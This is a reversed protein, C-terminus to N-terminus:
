TYPSIRRSGNHPVPTRGRPWGAAHVATCMTNPPPIEPRRGSGQPSTKDLECRPERAGMPRMWSTRRRDSTRAIARSDIGNRPATACASSPVRAPRGPRSSPRRGPRPARCRPGPWRARGRLAPAASGAASGPCWCVRGAPVPRRPARPRPVPVRVPVPSSCGSRTRWCASGPWRRWRLPSRGATCRRRCPARTRGSCRPPCSRCGPDVAGQVLVVRGVGLAVEDGLPQLEPREVGAQVREAEGVLAGLALAAVEGVGVVVHVAQVDGAGRRERPVRRRGGLRHGEGRATVTLTVNVM